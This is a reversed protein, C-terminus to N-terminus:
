PGQLAPLHRTQDNPQEGNLHWDSFPGSAMKWNMASGTMSGTPDVKGSNMTLHSQESACAAWQSEIPRSHFYSESQERDLKEVEGEIRLQRNIQLWPFMLSARPNSDLDKGKRSRYNTFFTFGLKNADKLLVTRLTPTNDLCTALSMATPDQVGAQKAQEFWKEFQTLPNKDLDERSLGESEYERRIQSIDM